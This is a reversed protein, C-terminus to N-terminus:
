HHNTCKSNSSKNWKSLKEAAEKQKREKELKKLEEQMRKEAAAREREAKVKDLIKLDRIRQEEATMNEVRKQAQMIKKYKEKAKTLKEERGELSLRENRRQWRNM